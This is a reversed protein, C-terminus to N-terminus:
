FIVTFLSNLKGRFFDFIGGHVTHLGFVVIIACVISFHNKWMTHSNYKGFTHIIALLSQACKEPFLGIRDFTIRKYKQVTHTTITLCKYIYIDTSVCRFKFVPHFPM